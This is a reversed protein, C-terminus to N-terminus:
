IKPVSHLVGKSVRGINRKKGGSVTYSEQMDAAKQKTEKVATEESIVARGSGYM